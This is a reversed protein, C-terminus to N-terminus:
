EIIEPQTQSEKAPTPKGFLVFLYPFGVGLIGSLVRGFTSQTMGLAVTINGVLSASPGWLLLAWVPIPLIHLNFLAVIGVQYVAMVTASRVLTGRDCTKRLVLGIVLVMVVSFIMLVSSVRNSFQEALEQTREQGELSRSMWDMVLMSAAFQIVEAIVFAAPIAWWRKWRERRM